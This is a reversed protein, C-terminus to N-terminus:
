EAKVTVMRKETKKGRYFAVEYPEGPLAFLIFHTTTTQLKAQDMKNVTIVEGEETYIPGAIAGYSSPVSEAEVHDAVGYIRVLKGQPRANLRVTWGTDVSVFATPTSPTIADGGDSGAQPPDFETPFRIDGGAHIEGDPKGAPLTVSGLGAIEVTYAKPTPADPAASLELLRRPTLRKRSNPAAALVVSFLVLCVIAARITTKM